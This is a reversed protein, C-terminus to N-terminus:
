LIHKNKQLLIENMIENMIREFDNV